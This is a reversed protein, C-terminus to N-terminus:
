SGGYPAGAHGYDQMPVSWNGWENSAIDYVMGVSNPYGGPIFIKRKQRHCIMCHNSIATPMSALETWADTAPDYRWLKNFPGGSGSTGIWGGGVYHYRGDTCGASRYTGNNDPFDAFRQWVRQANPSPETPPLSPHDPVVPAAADLPHGGNSSVIEKQTLVASARPLARQLNEPTVTYAPSNAAFLAAVLMMTLLLAAKRKDTM